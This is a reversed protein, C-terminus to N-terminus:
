YISVLTRDTVLPEEDCVDSLDLESMSENSESEDFLDVEM